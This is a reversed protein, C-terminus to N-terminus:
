AVVRGGSGLAEVREALDGAGVDNLMATLEEFEEDGRAASKELAALAQERTLYGERIKASLYDHDATFGWAARYLHNLLLKITCDFRWSNEPDPCTWGVKEIVTRQVHAPDYEIFDFFSVHLIGPHLMRLAGGWERVRAYSHLYDAVQTLAGGHILYRPNQMLNKVLGRLVSGGEATLSNGKFPAEEIHSWGMVITDINRERAIKCASGVIGIRCGTCMLPVMSPAPRELYARLNGPMLRRQHTQRVTVLEVGLREVTQRLNVGADPHTFGGDYNVAVADVGLEEVLYYLVFTSDKGGSIPVICRPRGNASVSEALTAELAVRGRYSAGEHARCFTCVGDADFDIGPYNDPLVCRTCAM